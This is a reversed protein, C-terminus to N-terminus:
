KRRVLAKGLEDFLKGLEPDFDEQNRAVHWVKGVSLLAQWVKIKQQYDQFKLKYEKTDKASKPDPEEPKLLRMAGMYTQLDERNDRHLPNTHTM